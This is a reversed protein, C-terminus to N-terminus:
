QSPVNVVQGADNVYSQQPTGHIKVDFTGQPTGGGSTVAVAKGTLGAAVEYHVAHTGAHVATVTWDFTASRGPKLPGLAWTNSYATVAGGPGGTCSSYNNDYHQSGDPPCTTGAGVPDPGRDIIWVPRSPYALEPLSPSSLRYAFAQASTKLKPDTITVVIDPITRQDANRVTIVLHSQQALGQTTPFSAREVQVSYHGATEDAGQQGGGGCAALALAAAIGAVIGSSRFRWGSL